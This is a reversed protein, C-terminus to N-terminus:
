AAQSAVGVAETRVYGLELLSTPKGGVTRSKNVMADMITEM